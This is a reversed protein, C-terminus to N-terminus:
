QLILCWRVLGGDLKLTLIPQDGHFLDVTYESAEVKKWQIESSFTAELAELEDAVDMIVETVLSFVNYDPSSAVTSYVRNGCDATNAFAQAITAGGM